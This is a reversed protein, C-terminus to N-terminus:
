RTMSLPMTSMRRSSFLTTLRGGDDFAAAGSRARRSSIRESVSFPSSTWYSSSNRLQPTFTRRMSDLSSLVASPAVPAKATRPLRENRRRSRVMVIDGNSVTIVKSPDFTASSCARRDDGSISANRLPSMLRTRSEVESSRVSLPLMLRSLAILHTGGGGTGTVPMAVISPDIVPGAPSKEVSRTTRLLVIPTPRSRARSTLPGTFTVNPEKEPCSRTILGCDPPEIRVAKLTGHPLADILVALASHVPRSECAASRMASTSGSAIPAVNSPLPVNSNPSGRFSTM